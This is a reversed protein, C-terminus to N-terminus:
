LLDSLNVVVNNDNATDNDNVSGNLIDSLIETIEM